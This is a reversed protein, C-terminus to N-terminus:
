APGTPPPAGGRSPRGLAMAAIIAPQLLLAALAAGYGWREAVLAVVLPAALEPASVVSEV